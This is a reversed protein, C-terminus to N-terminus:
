LIFRFQHNVFVPFDQTISVGNERKTFRALFRLKSRIHRWKENSSAYVVIQSTKQGAGARGCMGKQCSLDRCVGGQNTVKRVHEFDASRRVSAFNDYILVQLTKALNRSLLHSSPFSKTFGKEDLFGHPLTRYSWTAATSYSQVQILPCKRSILSRYNCTAEIKIIFVNTSSNICHLVKRRTKYRTRLEWDTNYVQTRIKYGTRM